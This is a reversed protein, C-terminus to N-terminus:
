VMKKKKDRTVDFSFHFSDLVKFFGGVLEWWVVTKIKSLKKKKKQKTFKYIFFGCM